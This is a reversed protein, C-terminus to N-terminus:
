EKAIISKVGYYQSIMLNICYNKNTTLGGFHIIFSTPCDAGHIHELFKQVSSLPPPSPIYIVESQRNELIFNLQDKWSESILAYSYIISAAYICIIIFIGKSLVPSLKINWSLKKLENYSIIASVIMFPLSILAVRFDFKPSFMMVLPVIFGTAAFSLSLIELTNLKGSERKFFYIITPLIAILDLGVIPIFKNWFHNKLLEMSFNFDPNVSRIFETQAFNGPALICLVSGLILTFFGTIMWIQLFKKRSSIFILITTLFITALSGAENSWGAFIGLVAMFFIKLKSDVRKGSRVANVYPLLFTLQFVSMWFYNCAGTLWTMWATTEFFRAGVFFLIFFIWVM